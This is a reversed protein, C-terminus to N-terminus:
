DARLTVAPDMSAARRAPLYSAVTAVALVILTAAALSIADRPNTEFVLGRMADALLLAAGIGTAISVCALAAGDAVVLRAVDFPSAGLALRIGFERLRQSVAFAVLAYIGVSALLVASLAFALLLALTMRRQTTSRRLVDDMPRVDYVPQDPDVSRIARLVPMLLATAEGQGRVVLAMRDQPKQLYSWYVQPRPDVEFGQHRVHGVVGVVELWRDNPERLRKGIPNEGPWAMRALREDVIVVPRVSADDHTTFTRGRELPIGLTEFYCTTVPRFDADVLSAAGAASEVEIAGSQDYGSFPLRNVMGAAKVGPISRVADLLRTEFAAVPQDGQYKSRPVALLLSLVHDAKIGPDVESLRVFSRVLVGSGVLLPVAVAVQTAVMVRRIRRHRIGSTASRSRNQTASRFDARWAETAPLLTAALATLCLAALAVVLVQVNIEISEIRALGPPAATVFVRIAWSASAVGLAGGLLVIPLVEAFAQSAIRARSAGLALRIAFESARRAARASFLTAVNLCAILLLCCVAGLLLLLTARVPRTVDDLLSALVVDPASSRASHTASTRRALATMERRAQEISVGPRLRAICTYGFGGVARSLEAPNITLPVWLQFAPTPYNFSEPMVGVVTYAEGSLHITRGVISPDSAFRRRWLAYSLVVVDENGLREADDTFTSGYLPKTGLVRFLSATVRAALLREPEGSEGTLNFNALNRILAMEDFVHNASRWERYDAANVLATGPRSPFASRVTVLREPAPYPLPRLMVGYVVTVIATVASVGLAIIVVAAAVFGWSKRILRLGLHMDRAFHRMALDNM